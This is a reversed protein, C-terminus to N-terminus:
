NSAPRMGTREAERHCAYRGAGSVGYSGRGKLHFMGSQPNLWVVTDKPCHDQAQQETRYATLVGPSGGCSGLSPALALVAFVGSLIRRIAGARDLELLLSATKLMDRDRQAM